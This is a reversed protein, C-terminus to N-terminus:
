MLLDMITLQVYDRKVSLPSMHRKLLKPYDKGSLWEEADDMEILLPMRDHIPAMSENAPSTIITFRYENGFVDFCGALFLSENNQAKCEAKNKDADWEYFGSAPLLCRHQRIGNQFTPKEM